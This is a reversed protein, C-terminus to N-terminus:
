SVTVKPRSPGEDKIKPHKKDFETIQQNFAPGLDIGKELEPINGTKQLSDAIKCFVEAKARFNDASAQM